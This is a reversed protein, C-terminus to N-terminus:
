WRKNRFAKRYDQVSMEGDGKTTVHSPKLSKMPESTTTKKDIVDRSKGISASIEHLKKKIFAPNRSSLKELHGNSCIHHLVEGANEVVGDEGLLPLIKNFQPREWDVSDVEEDWDSFKARASELQPKLKAGIEEFHKQIKEAEDREKKQTAEQQRRGEEEKIVRRASDESEKRVDDLKKDFETQVEERVRAAVKEATSRKIGAAMSDLEARSMQVVKSDDGSSSSGLESNESGQEIDSMLIGGVIVANGSVENLDLSQTADSSIYGNAAPAEKIKSSDVHIYLYM